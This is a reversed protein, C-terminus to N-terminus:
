KLMEIIISNAIFYTAYRRMWHIKNRMQRGLSAYKVAHPALTSFDEANKTNEATLFDTNM